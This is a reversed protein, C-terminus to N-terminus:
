QRLPQIKFLVYFAYGIIINYVLYFVQKLIWTSTVFSNGEFHLQAALIIITSLCFLIYASATVFYPDRLLPTYTSLNIKQYYYQLAFILGLFVNLSSNIYLADINFKFYISTIIIIVIFVYGIGRIQKKIKDSYFPVKQWFFMILISNLLCYICYVPLNNKQLLYFSTGIIDFFISLFISALLLKFFLNLSPKYILVVFLPILASFQFGILVEQM